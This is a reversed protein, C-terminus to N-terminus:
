MASGAIVNKMVLVPVTSENVTVPVSKLKIIDLPEARVAVELAERVSVALGPVNTVADFQSLEPFENVNDFVVM